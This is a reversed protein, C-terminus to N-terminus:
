KITKLVNIKISKFAPSSITSRETRAAGAACRWRQGSRRERERCRRWSPVLLPWLSGEEKTGLKLLVVICETGATDHNVLKGTMPRYNRGSTRLKAASHRRCFKCKPGLDPALPARNTATRCTPVMHVESFLVTVLHGACRIKSGDLYIRVHLMFAQCKLSTNTVFQSAIRYQIAIKRLKLVVHCNLIYVQAWFFGAFSGTSSHAPDSWLGDRMPAVVSKLGWFTLDFSKWLDEHFKTKSTQVSSSTSLKPLLFSREPIDIYEHHNIRVLDDKKRASGPVALKPVTIVIRDRFPLLLEQQSKWIRLPESESMLSREHPTM